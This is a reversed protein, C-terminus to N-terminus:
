SMNSVNYGVGARIALVDGYKRLPSFQAVIRFQILSRQTVKSKSLHFM